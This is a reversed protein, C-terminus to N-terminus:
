ASCSIGESSSMRVATPWAPISDPLSSSSVAMHILHGEVSGTLSQGARPVRGLTIGEQPFDWTSGQGQPRKVVAGLVADGKNRPFGLVCHLVEPGWGEM